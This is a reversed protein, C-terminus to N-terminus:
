VLYAVTSWASASWSKFTLSHGTNLPSEDGYSSAGDSLAEDLESLNAGDEKTEALLDDDDDLEDVTEPGEFPPSRTRSRTHLGPVLDETALLHNHHVDPEQAPAALGTKSAKPGSHSDDEM